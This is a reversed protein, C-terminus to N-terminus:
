SEQWLSYLVALQDGDPKPSAQAPVHAVSQLNQLIHLSVPIGAELPLLPLFFVVLKLWCRSEWNVSMNAINSRPLSTNLQALTKLM